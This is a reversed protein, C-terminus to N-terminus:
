KKSKLSKHKLSKFLKSFQFYINSNNQNNPSYIASDNTHRMEVSRKLKYINNYLTISYIDIHKNEKKIVFKKDNKM